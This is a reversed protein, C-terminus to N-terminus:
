RQLFLHLCQGFTPQGLSCGQGPANGATDIHGAIDQWEQEPAGPCPEATREQRDEEEQATCAMRVVNPVGM